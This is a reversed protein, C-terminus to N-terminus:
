LDNYIADTESDWDEAFSAEALTVFMRDELDVLLLQDFHRVFRGFMENFDDPSSSSYGVWGADYGSAPCARSVDEHIFEKRDAVQVVTTM